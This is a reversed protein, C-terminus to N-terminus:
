KLMVIIDYISMRGAHLRHAAARKNDKGHAPVPIHYLIIECLGFVFFDRDPTCSFIDEPTLGVQEAVAVLLINCDLM